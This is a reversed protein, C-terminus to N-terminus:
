TSSSEKGDGKRYYKGYYKQYYRERQPEVCNLIVGLVNKEGLEDVAQRLATYPTFGARYLLVFADVQDRLVLTDAVPIIPPTDLLVVDFSNRTEKLFARFKEGALLDAPAAIRTGAPIVYLGKVPASRVIDKIGATGGLFESLGPHPTLNMTRALDAKRLDMDILLVKKRGAAALNTALNACSATKGEGAVASTVALVRCNLMDIKYEVKARLAKFQELYVPDKAGNGVPGPTGNDRFANIAERLFRMKM